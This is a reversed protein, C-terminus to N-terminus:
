INDINVIVKKIRRNDVAIIKFIFNMYRIEEHKVPIEEKIELILGAITEADGKIKDFTSDAIGTIKYFDNLLTKGEFIYKNEDVKFYKDEIEDSEDKIEGFIEELIDELTVIGVTGGYEDIIIAMHIKKSQFERLLDDIKKNVPVFYPTRILNQWKFDEGENLYPLLDKIYLIGKINDFNNEYVPIRSYGSELVISILKNFNFSIDASVWDMRSKMIENVEITGFSAISKLIKEDEKLEKGTIDIAHSIDEMSLNNKGSLNKNVILSSKILIISVPLFIKDLFYLPFAMLSAIQIPIRSAYVKPIIEGFLLILFTIMVTQFIFGGVNSFYKDVFPNTLFACLIVIGINVLNNGILIVALLREPHKLNKLICRSKSTNRKKLSNINSPTLSFYAVESASFLASATILCVLCAIGIVNTSLTLNTINILVSM